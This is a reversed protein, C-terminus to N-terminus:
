PTSRHAPNALAEIQAAYGTLAHLSAIAARAIDADSADAPLDALPLHPRPPLTPAPCPTAIPIEVRRVVEHPTTACGALLAAALLAAHRAIM